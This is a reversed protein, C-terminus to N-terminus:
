LLCVLISPRRGARDAFGGLAVSGLAMGILEMSLVVGLAARDIGWDSSIGPAAFSIALVDFGDLANLAVCLAVAAIQLRGMPRELLITRPDM